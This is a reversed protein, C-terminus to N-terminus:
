PEVHPHDPYLRARLGSRRPPDLIDEHTLNFTLTQDEDGEGDFRDGRFRNLKLVTVNAGIFFAGRGITQYREAFIPGASVATKVPGGATITFIAGSSTSAVPVNAVAQATSTTLSGVFAAFAGNADPNFHSGHVDNVALQLCVLTGCDGFTFIQRLNASLSQAPLPAAYLCYVLVYLGIPRM